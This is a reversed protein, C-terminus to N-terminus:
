TAGLQSRPPTADAAARVADAFAEPAEQPVNHGIGALYRTQFWGTFLDRDGSEEFTPGGVGDAGSELVVTPVSITPSAALLDEIEQYRPEGEALGYRHRYSHIVVDVFAPNHLSAASAKFAEGAAQWEPSWTRWLLECLEERNRELGNRGREGHFYWQYWYTAEWEPKSPEVAAHAIDQINYGDATVLGRVRGPWLAAVICAARGGWDYGAVVPRDLHLANIFDLLDQGLAGQQGSRPDTASRFHTSGFGRLFPVYVDFGGSATLSAAVADYARIDYPFGHLLVVPIGAPDGHREYTVTLTPTVM